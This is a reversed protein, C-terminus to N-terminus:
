RTRELVLDLGDFIRQMSKTPIRGVRETLFVRDIALILTTQAVSDRDLGTMTAPLAVNGPAAAWKLNSTLPICITTALRSRNIADGQVILVPRRYGATSGPPDALDAWWVDGQSILM